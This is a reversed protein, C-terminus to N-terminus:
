TLILQERRNKYIQSESDIRYFLVTGLGVRFIVKSGEVFFIDLIRISLDKQFVSCFLTLFWKSAFTSTSFEHAKFHTHLEPCHENILM